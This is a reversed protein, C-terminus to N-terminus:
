PTIGERECYARAQALLDSLPDGKWVATDDDLDLSVRLVSAAQSKSNTMGITVDVGASILWSLLEAQEASQRQTELAACAQDYAWQTPYPQRDHAVVQDREERLAAMEKDRVALVVDAAFLAADRLTAFTQFEKLGDLSANLLADAYRQRLGDTV